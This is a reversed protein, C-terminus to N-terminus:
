RRMRALPEVAARVDDESFELQIHRHLEWREDHEVTAGPQLVALPALTELELMRSNSFVELSSNFDPYRAGDVYPCVQYAMSPLLSLTLLGHAITQGFPTTAAREPDVHLFYHDDTTDAFSDIMSQTVLVWSSPGFSSGIRATIDRWAM